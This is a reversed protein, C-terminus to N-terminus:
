REGGAVVTLSPGVGGTGGETGDDGPDDLLAAYTALGRKEVAVAPVVLDSTASRRAGQPAPLVLARYPRAPLPHLLAREEREFREQPVAKTTAHVRVNAVTALWHLVQANLDADSLFTRGYLFNERLYRIPREVKGKTKARYPRCVRIRTGYHRTFRLFELNTELAGGELRQDRTVVSRMQDFLLEATVGGWDQFCAELGLLLTALDQRPYFQVWLLRAYALVVVLAYRVGWPFRCHAFDVQAQRGAPTEFRVLPEPPPRLTQVYARLQSIGGTYGAARCEALLRVGSLRPFEALRTGILDHFPELKTPTAPRPGYRVRIEDIPEDLLGDAIWRYLTARGVGVRKAAARRSGGVEELLHRLLVRQFVGHM